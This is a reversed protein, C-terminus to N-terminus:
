DNQAYFKPVVHTHCHLSVHIKNCELIRLMLVVDM